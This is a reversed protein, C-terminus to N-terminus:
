PGESMVVPGKGQENMGSVEEVLGEWEGFGSGIMSGIVSASRSVGERGPVRPTDINQYVCAPLRHTNILMETTM